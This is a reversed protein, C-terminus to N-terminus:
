KKEADLAALRRAEALNTDVKAEVPPLQSRAERANTLEAQLEVM